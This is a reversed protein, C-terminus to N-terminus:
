IVIIEGYFGGLLQFSLYHNTRILIKQSIVIPQILISVPCYDPLMYRRRRSAQVQRNQSKTVNVLIGPGNSESYLVNGGPGAPLHLKM